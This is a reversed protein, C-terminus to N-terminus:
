SDWGVGPFSTNNNEPLPSQNLGWPQCRPGSYGRPTPSEYYLRGEGVWFPSMQETRLLVGLSPPENQERTM